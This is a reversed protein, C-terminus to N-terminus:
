AKKRKVRNAKSIEIAALQDKAQEESDHTGLTKTGEKNTVVFKNGRKRIVM